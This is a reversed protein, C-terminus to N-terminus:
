CLWQGAADFVLLLEMTHSATEPCNPVLTLRSPPVASIPFRNGLWIPESSVLLSASKCGHDAKPVKESRVPDPQSMEESTKLNFVERETV